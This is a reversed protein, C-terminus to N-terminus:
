PRPPVVGAHGMSEFLAKWGMDIFIMDWTDSKSLTVDNPKPEGFIVGVQYKQILVPIKNEALDNYRDVDSRSAIPILDTDSEMHRSFPDLAPGLDPPLPPPPVVLDNYWNDPRTLIEDILGGSNFINETKCEEFFAVTGVGQGFHLTIFSFLAMIMVNAQGETLRITRTYNMWEDSYDRWLVKYQEKTGGSPTDYCIAEMVALKDFLSQSISAINVDLVSEAHPTIM